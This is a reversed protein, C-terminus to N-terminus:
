FLWWWPVRIFYSLNSAPSQPTQCTTIGDDWWCGLTLIFNSSIFSKYLERKPQSPHLPSCLLLAVCDPSPLGLGHFYFTSQHPQLEVDLPYRHCKRSQQLFVHRPSPSLVTVSHAGWTRPQCLLPQLSAPNHTCSPGTSEWWATHARDDKNTSLGKLFVFDIQFLALCIIQSSPFALCKLTRLRGFKYPFFSSTIQYKHM